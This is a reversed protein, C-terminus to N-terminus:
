SRPTFTLQGGNHLIDVAQSVMSKVVCEATPRDKLLGVSEGCPVAIVDLDNEARARAYEKSLSGFAGFAESERAAWQDTL